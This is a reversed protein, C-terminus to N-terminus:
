HRSRGNRRDPMMEVHEQADILYGIEGSGEVADLDLGVGWDRLDRGCDIRALPRNAGGGLSAGVKQEDVV